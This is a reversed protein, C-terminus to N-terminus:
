SRWRHERRSKQLSENVMEPTVEQGVSIVWVGKKNLIKAPKRVPRLLIVEEQEEVEFETGARVGLRTRISKPLVIRGFQDIPIHLRQSAM